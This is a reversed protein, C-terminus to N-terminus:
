RAPDYSGKQTRQTVLVTRLRNVESPQNTVSYFQFQISNFYLNALNSFIGSMERIELFHLVDCIKHVESIVADQLM